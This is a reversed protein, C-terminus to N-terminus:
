DEWEEFIGTTKKGDVEDSYIVETLRLTTSIGQSIAVTIFDGIKFDEDIKFVGLLDVIGDVSVKKMTKALETKGYQSLMYWYDGELIDEDKTIDSTIYEEFRAVGSATGVNASSQYEGEGEGLVLGANKFSELSNVYEGDQLNDFEPSFIVTATKDEGETFTISMSNDMLIMDWGLRNEICVSEIWKGLNEGRLQCTIIPPTFGYDILGADIYPIVRNQAAIIDRTYYGNHAALEDQEAIIINLADVCGDLIEQATEVTKVAQDYDTQALNAEANALALEDTKANKNKEAQALQIELTDLEGELRVVDAKYADWVDKAAQAQASQEGYEEVAREYAAKATAADSKAEDLEAKKADRQAKKTNYAANATESAGSKSEVDALATNLRTLATAADAQASSLESSAQIVEATVTAREQSKAEREIAIEDLKDQIYGTPNTINRIIMTIIVTTLPSEVADYVDWIIRQSLIDKVSKGSFKLTYGYDANYQISVNRIIMANKYTTGSVGQVIDCERVLMRGNKILNINEPTPPATVEFYGLGYLQPNWLCSHYSPLMGVIPFHPEASQFPNIVYIEM